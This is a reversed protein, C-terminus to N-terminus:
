PEEELQRRLAEERYLRRYAALEDWLDEHRGFAVVRGGALFWVGDAEEVEFARHSVVLLTRGRFRERLRGIVARATRADLNSLSGDLVLVGPDGYVARAIGLRQRQGGSLTVGGEGVPTDLGGLLAAVDDALGALALADWIQADDRPRGLCVNAAVTDSFFFDEQPVVALHRRLAADSVEHIPAGHVSIRGAQPRRLRALLSVVTTKGSGTPGVLAWVGGEPVRLDVGSVAPGRSGPYGYSVGEAELCPGDARPLPGTPEPEAPWARVEELRGMAAAGRQFLSLTWGLAVMPWVLMALYASFAVLGGLSLSGEYVWYGGLGLVAVHGLGALVGVAPFVGAWAWVVRERATCLAQNERQFRAQQWAERRYARLVRVATLTEHVRDALDGAARDAALFRQHLRPSMRRVIWAIAPFPALAVLTLGPHIRWLLVATATAVLVTQCLNLLGAGLFLRLDQIDHLARSVLDGRRATDLTEVPLRLLHGVYAMRLEHEVRRAAALVLRRSAFRFGAQGLALGALLAALGPVSGSGSAVADVGRSLVQPGALQLAVSYVLAVFGWAFAKAHPRLHPFLPRFVRIM